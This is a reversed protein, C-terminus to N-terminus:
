VFFNHKTELAIKLTENYQSYFCVDCKSGDFFKQNSIIDSLDSIKGMKMENIYDKKQGNIAYQAGCCPFIGEPSITPKLISIYCNKSGKISNKRGQYIVKSDDIRDHKLKLEIDIMDSINNLNGLDSVLRVHTFNSVNAFNIIKKILEFNPESTVVHSFAWDTNNNLNIATKIKDFNHKRDDSSSIRCWKLNSHYELRDLLIGNTVLGVEIFDLNKAYKIIDNIGLHMLPEGGGTITVAQTGYAYCIEMIKVIDEYSLEINKNRDACSCFKCDLNCKNTPILQIHIPLIDKNPTLFNTSILKVPFSDAATYDSKNM